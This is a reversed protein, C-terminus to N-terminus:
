AEVKQVAARRAELASQAEDWVLPLPKAPKDTILMVSSPKYFDARGTNVRIRCVPLGDKVRERNQWQERVEKGHKDIEITGCHSYSGKSNASYGKQTAPTVDNTKAGYRRKEACTVAMRENWLTQLTQAEAESPNIIPLAAKTSTSVRRPKPNPVSYGCDRMLERWQGDTADLIRGQGIHAPLATPSEVQYGLDTKTAKPKEAGHTRTFEQLIVPSLEGDFLPAPELQSQEYSLRGLVHAICRRRKPARAMTEWAILNNAKVEAHTKTGNRLADWDGRMARGGVNTLADIKADTDARKWLTLTREAHALERQHDRLEKLLTKIRGRRVSPANHRNAHHEVGDARYLWYSAKAHASAEKKLASEAREADREARRQSHHGMLIPQGDAFRQSYGQAARAFADADANRSRAYGDLRAAKAEAREALTMQEAEIDGALETCLDERDPTWRPAVFLEQYKAYKFGADKLRHYLPTPLRKSAYLRLKNDEASYTASFTVPRDPRKGSQNTQDHNHEFTTQHESMPNDKMISPPFSSPPM